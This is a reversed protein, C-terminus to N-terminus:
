GILVLDWHVKQGNGLWDLRRLVSISDTTGGVEELAAFRTQPKVPRDITPNAFTLSTACLSFALAAAVSYSCCRLM